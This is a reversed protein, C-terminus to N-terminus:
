GPLDILECAGKLRQLRGRVKALFPDGVEEVGAWTCNILVAALDRLM